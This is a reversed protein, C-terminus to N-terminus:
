RGGMAAICAPCTVRARNASHPGSEAGCAIVMRPLGSSRYHVTERLQEDPIDDLGTPDPERGM